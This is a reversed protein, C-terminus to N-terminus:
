RRRTKAWRCTGRRRRRTRRGPLEADVADRRVRLEVARRRRAVDFRQHERGVAARDDRARVVAGRNEDAISAFSVGFSVFSRTIALADHLADAFRAVFSGLSQFCRAVAGGTASRLIALDTRSWLGRRTSARSGVWCPATRPRARRRPRRPSRRSRRTPRAARSRCAVEDAHDDHGRRVVAVERVARELRRARELEQERQARLRRRLLAHQPPGAMVAVMVLVRVGLVVDVRRPAAPKQYECM